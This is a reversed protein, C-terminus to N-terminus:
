PANALRWVGEARKRLWAYVPLQFLMSRFIRSDSTTTWSGTPTLPLKPPKSIEISIVLRTGYLVRSNTTLRVASSYSYWVFHSSFCFFIMVWQYKLKLNQIKKVIGPRSSRLWYLAETWEDRQKTELYGIKLRMAVCLGQKREVTIASIDM